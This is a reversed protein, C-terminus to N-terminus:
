HSAAPPIPEPVRNHVPKITRLYAYVAKLDDDTLNRYMQWPMPPLIPRSVGMHRGTRIAKVFMDETWIGIGTNRDPTLNFAYSVGWPGSWATFDASASAIWPGKGAPPAPLNSGEPHGSLLRSTDLDFSGPKKPTHCDHCGITNVIYEGRAVRDADPGTVETAAARQCAAVTVVVLLLIAAQGGFCTARLGSLTQKM